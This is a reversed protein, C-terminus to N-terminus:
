ADGDHGNKQEEEGTTLTQVYWVLSIEAERLISLKVVAPLKTEGILNYLDM